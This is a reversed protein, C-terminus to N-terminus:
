LNAYHKVKLFIYRHLPLLFLWILGICLLSLDLPQGWEATSLKVGALYSLPAAIAGAIAAILPRDYIWKLSHLLTIGLLAWLSVLWFPPFDTHFDILLVKSRILLGDHLLGLLVALVVALFDQLKSPSLVFHLLILPLIIFLAANGGLVALFWGLQFVVLNAVFFYRPNIAM